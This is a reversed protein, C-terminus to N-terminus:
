TGSGSSRPCRRSPWTSRARAIDCCAEQLFDSPDVRGLFRRDLRLRVMRRLREHHRVFLATLAEVDAPSAPDPHECAEERENMM